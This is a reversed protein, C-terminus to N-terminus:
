RDSEYTVRAVGDDDLLRLTFPVGDAEMALALRRLVDEPDLCADDIKGILAVGEHPTLTADFSLGVESSRLAGRAIEFHFGTLDFVTALDQLARQSRLSGDFSHIM